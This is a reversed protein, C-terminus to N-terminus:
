TLGSAHKICTIKQPTDRTTRMSKVQKVFISALSTQYNKPIGNILLTLKLKFINNVTLLDLLNLLPLASDTDPGYLTAFFVLRILHNQKTQIKKIQTTYASGWSTIAYSIYPYILNYHLQKLQFLSTFHRLKSLIGINRSVRSRVYSVHHKWSITDDILVGLYQIYNRKELYFTSGDNNAIKVDWTINTKKKPSKIIM